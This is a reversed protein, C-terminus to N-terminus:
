YGSEFTRQMLGRRNGILSKRISQQTIATQILPEPRPAIHPV